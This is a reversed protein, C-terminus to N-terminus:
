TQLRPFNMIRTPSELAILIVPVCDTRELMASSKAKGICKGGVAPAIHQLQVTPRRLLDNPRRGTKSNQVLFL